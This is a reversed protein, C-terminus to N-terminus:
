IDYVASCTLESCSKIAFPYKDPVQCIIRQAKAAETESIQIGIFVEFTSRVISQNSAGHPLSSPVGRQTSRIVNVIVQARVEHRGDWRSRSGM